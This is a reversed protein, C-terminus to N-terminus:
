YIAKLWKFGKKDSIRQILIALFVTVFLVIIFLLPTKQIQVGSVTSWKWFVELVLMHGYFILSSIKRIHITNGKISITRLFLFCFLAAPAAFLLMNYDKALGFFTVAFAEIALMFLSVVFFFLSKKRSILIEKDSLFMGLSVYFFAFFLGNRTTSFIKFYIHIIDGIFPLKRLPFIVGYYSEGLLGLIFFFFSTFVIKRPSWKKYLLFSVLLVAFLLASLYWLHTYSGVFILNKLYMFFGYVIGKPNNVINILSIPFYVLSWLLYLKLIRKFYTKSHVPSFAELSTKKYLFFGNFIFFLPVATRSLCHRLGFNLYSLLNMTEQRGFPPVHIMVVFVACILKAVDFSNYQSNKNTIDM